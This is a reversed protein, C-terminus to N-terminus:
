GGADRVAVRVVNSALGTTPDVVRVHYRGEAGFEVFAAFSGDIGTRAHLPFTRWNEQDRWQVLLNVPGATVPSRGVLQVTEFPGVARGPARLRPAADVTPRTNAPTSPQTTPSDSPASTVRASETPLVSAAAAPPLDRRSGVASPAQRDPLLAFVLFLDVAVAAVVILVLVLRTDSERQHRGALRNM